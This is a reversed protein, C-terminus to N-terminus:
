KKGQIGRKKRLRRIVITFGAIIVVALAIVIYALTTTSTIEQIATNQVTVNFNSTVFFPVSSNNTRYSLFLQSPYNGPSASSEVDMVFTVVIRQGPNLQSFTFNNATLSGLPNSSPVDIYLIDPTLIHVNIDVLAVKGSNTVYFTFLNTSSGPSVTIAPHSIVLSGKSLLTLPLTVNISNIHLYVPAYGVREAASILFTLNLIRGPYLSPISYPSTSVNFYNSTLYVKQPPSPSNGGNVMVANLIIFKEGQYIFPPNTYYNVVTVNSYGPLIVKYTLSHSSGNYTVSVYQLFSTGNGTVNVIFTVPVAQYQPIVSLTTSQNTGTLPWAPSYSVSVNTAPVRADDEIYFTLPVNNMGRGASITGTNFYSGAPILYPYGSLRLTFSATHTMGFYSINLSQTVTTNAAGISVTFTVPISYYSPIAPVVETSSQGNLPSQPTYSVTVNTAPSNGNNELYVTVPVEGMYATAQIPNGPTGFYAAQPLIDVSGLLAITGTTYGSVTSNGAVYSYDVAVSYMGSPASPSINTLQYITFTEGPSAIPFDYYDRLNRNEGHVYSYSFIGKEYQTFNFSINLNYVSSATELVIEAVMPVNTYGPAVRVTNNLSFWNVEEVVLPSSAGITTPIASVLIAAIALVLLIKKM